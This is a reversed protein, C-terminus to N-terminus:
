EFAVRINAIHYKVLNLQLVEEGNNYSGQKGEKDQFILYLDDILYSSENHYAHRGGSNGSASYSILSDPSVVLNKISRQLLM